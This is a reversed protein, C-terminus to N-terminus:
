LKEPNIFLKYPFKIQWTATSNTRRGIASNRYQIIEEVSGHRKLRIIKFKILPQFLYLIQTKKILQVAARPLLMYYPRYHKAILLIRQRYNGVIGQALKIPRQGRQVAKVIGIVQEPAIYYNDCQSNNDGRTLIGKANIEIIRHVVDTMLEPHPYVIIDGIRLPRYQLNDLEHHTLKDVILADGNKITPTMSPGICTSYQSQYTNMM